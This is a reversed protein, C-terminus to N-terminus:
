EGEKKIEDLADKLGLMASVRGPKDVVVKAAEVVKELSHIKNNLTSIEKEMTETKNKCSESGGRERVELAKVMEEKLEDKIKNSKLLAWCIYAVPDFGLRIFALMDEHGKSTLYENIFYPYWENDFFSGRGPLPKMGLIETAKSSADGFPKLRKNEEELLAIKAELEKILHATHEAPHVLGRIQAEAIQRKDIGYKKLEAQHDSDKKDLADKIFLYPKDKNSAKYSCARNWIDKAIRENGVSDSNNPNM